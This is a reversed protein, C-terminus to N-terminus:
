AGIRELLIPLALRYLLWGAMLVVTALGACLFFGGLQEPAGSLLWLRTADLVPSIPNLASAFSFGTSAVPYLVPTLFM